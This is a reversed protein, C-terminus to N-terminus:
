SNPFCILLIRTQPWGLCITLPVVGGDGFYGCCFPSSAHSLCYLTHKSFAFCQTWVGTGCVCVFVHVCLLALACLWTLCPVSVMHWADAVCPYASIDELTASSLIPSWILLFVHGLDGVWFSTPSLGM